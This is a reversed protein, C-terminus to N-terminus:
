CRRVTNASCLYPPIHLVHRTVQCRRDPHITLPNLPGPQQDSTLPATHIQQLLHHFRRSARKVGYGHLPRPM